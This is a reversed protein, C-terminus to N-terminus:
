TPIVNSTFTKKDIRSLFLTYEYLLSSIASLPGRSLLKPFVGRFCGRIGETRVLSYLGHIMNRYYYPQTNSITFHNSSKINPSTTHSSTINSPTMHSSSDIHINQSLVGQVQLRTKVVDLPNIIFSTFTGAIFGAALHPFRSSSNIHSSDNNENDKSKSSFINFFHSEYTTKKSSEYIAWWIGSAIGSTAFTAGLGRYFGKIGEQTYISKMASLFNKYPSNPLQLRQVVVDSPVYFLVSAADAVLGSLMPVVITSFSSLNLMASFISQNPFNSTSRSHDINSNLSSDPHNQAFKLLHEKTSSYSYFYILYSPLTTLNALWYGKYLLQIGKVVNSVTVSSPPHIPKTVHNHLSNQLFISRLQDLSARWPAKGKLSKSDSQERTKLVFFPYYLANEITSFFSSYGL